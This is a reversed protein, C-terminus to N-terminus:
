RQQTLATSSPVQENHETIATMSTRGRPTTSTFAMRWPPCQPPPLSPSHQYHHPTSTRHTNHTLPPLCNKHSTLPTSHPGSSCAQKPPLTNKQTCAHAHSEVFHTVIQIHLFCVSLRQCLDHWSKNKASNQWLRKESGFFRASPQFAVLERTGVALLSNSQWFYFNAHDRGFIFTPVIGALFTFQCLQVQCTTECCTTVYISIDLKPLM